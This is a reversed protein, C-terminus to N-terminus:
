PIQLDGFGGGLPDTPAECVGPRPGRSPLVELELVVRAAPPLWGEGALELRTAGRLTREGGGPLRVRGADPDVALRVGGRRTLGPHIDVVRERTLDRELLEIEVEFEGSDPVRAALLWADPLVAQPRLHDAGPLVGTERVAGALTARARYDEQGVLDGVGLKAVERIRVAAVRGPDDAWGRFFRLMLGASLREAMPLVAALALRQEAERDSRAAEYWAASARAAHVVFAGAGGRPAGTGPDLSAEELVGGRAHPFGPEAIVREALGEFRGHNSHPLQDGDNAAHHPVSADAVMHLAEGLWRVAAEVHPALDGDMPSTERALDVPASRMADLAEAYALDAMERASAHPGVLTALEWPLLALGDLWALLRDLDHGERTGLEMVFGRDRGPDHFHTFPKRPISRDLVPKARAVVEPRVEAWARGRLDPAVKGRVKRDIAAMLEDLDLAGHGRDADRTGRVLARRYREFFVAAEEHGDARLVEIARLVLTGHVKPNRLVDPGPPYWARASPVLLAAVLIFPVFRM